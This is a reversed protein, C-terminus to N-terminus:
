MSLSHDEPSTPYLLYPGDFSSITIASMGSDEHNLDNVLESFAQYGSEVVEHDTEEPLFCYTKNEHVQGSHTSSPTAEDSECDTIDKPVFSSDPITSCASFIEEYPHHKTFISSSKEMKQQFNVILCSKKPDPINELWKKWYRALHKVGIAGCIILVICCPIIIVLIWWIQFVKKTKWTEINSWEGWPGNFCGKDSKVRMRLMAHYRTQPKLDTDLKLKIEPHKNYAIERVNTSCNLPQSNNEDLPYDDDSWYCLEYYKKFNQTEEADSTWNFLVDGDNLEQLLLKRPPLRVNDCASCHKVENESQVRVVSLIHPNLHVSKITCRCLQYPLNQAMESCQPYCVGESTENQEFSLKFSVSDMIEKRVVWSCKLVNTEHLFCRLNQPNGDNNGTEKPELLIESSWNSWGQENFDTNVRMRALYRAGLVHDKSISGWSDKCEGTSSEEWTKTDERYQVECQLIGASPDGLFLHKSADSMHLYYDHETAYLEPRRQEDQLSEESSLKMEITLNQDPSFAYELQSLYRFKSQTKHVCKWKVNEESEEILEKPQCVHCVPEEESTCLRMNVFKKAHKSETWTCTVQTSFDTYCELSDWLRTVETMLLSHFTIYFLTTLTRCINEM